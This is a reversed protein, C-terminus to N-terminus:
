SSAYVQTEYLKVYKELEKGKKEWYMEHLRAVGEFETEFTLDDDLKMEMGNLTKRALLELLSNIVHSTIVVSEEGACEYAKILLERQVLGYKIMLVLIVDRANAVLSSLAMLSSKLVFNGRVLAATASLAQILAHDSISSHFRSRIVPYSIPVGQRGQLLTAVRATLDKMWEPQGGDVGDVGVEMGAAFDEVADDAVASPLYNLSQVYGGNGGTKGAKIFRLTKERGERPCYARKVMAKREESGPGFVDLELWEEGEESAKKFAYSNRRQMMARENEPKKFMIPKSTSKDIEEEDAKQQEGDGTDDDFLADVHRFTPRMQMVRYLPVLDIKTGTADFLGMAMHTKMKINQSYLTREALNLVEPVQRQASFSSKPVDFTLELMDHHPKLKVSTPVAPPIPRIARQRSNKNNNMNIPNVTHSAPQLPFQILHMCSALEPSIFVDIERVIEDEEDIDDDDIVMTEEQKHIDNVNGLLASLLTPDDIIHNSVPLNIGAVNTTSTYEVEMDAEANSEEPEAKVPIRRSSMTNQISILQRSNSLLHTNTNQITNTTIPKTNNSEQQKKYPPPRNWIGRSMCPKHCKEFLMKEALSM